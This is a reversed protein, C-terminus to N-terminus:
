TKRTTAYVFTVFEHKYAQFYISILLGKIEDTGRSNSHFEFRKKM